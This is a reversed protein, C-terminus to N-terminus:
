VTLREQEPKGAPAAHANEGGETVTLPLVAVEVKVIVVVAAVASFRPRSRNLGSTGPPASSAPRM